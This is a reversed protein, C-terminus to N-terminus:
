EIKDRIPQYTSDDVALFKVKGTQTFDAKNPGKYDAPLFIAQNMATSDATLAAVIKKM